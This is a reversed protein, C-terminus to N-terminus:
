GVSFGLRRIEAAVTAVLSRSARRAARGFSSAFFGRARITRTGREVFFGYYADLSRTRRSGIVAVPITYGGRRGGGTRRYTRHVTGISRALVGMAGRPTAARVESIVQRAATRVGVRMARDGVARPLDRTMRMIERDLRRFDLSSELAM